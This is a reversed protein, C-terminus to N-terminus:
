LHSISGIDKDGILETTEATFSDEDKYAVERIVVDMYNFIESVLENKRASNHKGETLYLTKDWSKIREFISIREKESILEDKDSFIVKYINEQLYFAHFAMNLHELSIGISEKIKDDIMMLATKIFIQPCNPSITEVVNIIGNVLSFYPSDLVIFKVKSVHKLNVNFKRKMVKWHYRSNYLLCAVSGMSRGWLIFKKYITHSYLYCLITELDLTEWYGLSSYKGESNGHARFDFACLGINSEAIHPILFDAEHQSGNMTHCYVLCCPESNKPMILTGSLLLKENHFTNDIEFPEFILNHERTRKTLPNSTESFKKRVPILIREHITPMAKLVKYNKSIFDM